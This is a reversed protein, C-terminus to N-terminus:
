LAPVQAAWTLSFPDGLVPSFCLDSFLEQNVFGASRLAEVIQDHSFYNMCHQEQFSRTLKQHSDTETVEFDILVRQQETNVIQIARREVTFGALQASRIKEKPPDSEVGDKDWSDFICVGGPRLLKCLHSLASRLQTVGDLYNVVHFLVLVADFQQATPYQLLDHCEFVLNSQLERGLQDRRKLAVDLMPQSRDVGTVHYGLRCLQEEYRGTGCGFSLIRGRPSGRSCLYDRIASAEKLYPKEQYLLDYVTALNAFPEM